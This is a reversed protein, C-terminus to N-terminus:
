SGPMDWLTKSKKGGKEETRDWGGGWGAFGVEWVAELCWEWIDRKNGYADGHNIENKCRLSKKYLVM